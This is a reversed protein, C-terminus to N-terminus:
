VCLNLSLLYLVTCSRGCQIFYQLIFLPAALSLFPPLPAIVGLISAARYKPLTPRYCDDICKSAGTGM